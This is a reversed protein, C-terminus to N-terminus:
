PLREGRGAVVDVGAGKISRDTGEAEAVEVVELLSRAGADEHGCAAGGEGEIGDKPQRHGIAVATTEQAPAHSPKRPLRDGTAGTKGVAGGTVVQDLTEKDGASELYGVVARGVGDVKYQVTEREAAGAVGVGDIEQLVAPRDQKFNHVVDVTGAM